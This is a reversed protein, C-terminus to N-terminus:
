SGFLEQQLRRDFGRAVLLFDCIERVAGQGGAADTVWHVRERVLPAADAPAVSLGVRDLVPIDIWDDGAYCIEQESVGTESM